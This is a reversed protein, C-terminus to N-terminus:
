CSEMFFYMLVKTLTHAADGLLLTFKVEDLMQVIKNNASCPKNYDTRYNLASKIQLYERM